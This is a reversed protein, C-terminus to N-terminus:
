RTTKSDRFQLTGVWVNHNSPTDEPFAIKKGDPSPVAWILDPAQKLLTVHGQLDLYLLDYESGTFSEVFIKQGDRAWAPSLVVGFGAVPIERAPLTTVTTTNDSPLKILQISPHSPDHNAVAIVKGDPSVSWDGRINPQWPIRALERGMGRVPDLEYYVFQKKEEIERLVCRGASSISCRFNEIKGTTPIATPNGGAIPQRDISLINDTKSDSHLYLLWLGDPSFRAQAFDDTSQRPQALIHPSGDNM